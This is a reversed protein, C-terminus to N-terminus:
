ESSKRADQKMKRYDIPRLETILCRQGRGIIVSDGRSLTAGTSKIAVRNAFPLDNCPGAITLLYAENVGTWIVLHDRGLPRWSDYRGLYSISSVPEGAYQQYRALEEQDSTRQPIGSCASVILAALVAVLKRYNM